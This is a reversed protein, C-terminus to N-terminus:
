QSGLREPQGKGSLTSAMASSTISYAPRDFEEYLGAILGRM